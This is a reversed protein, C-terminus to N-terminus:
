VEDDDMEARLRKAGIANIESEPLVLEESDAKPAISVQALSFCCSHTM